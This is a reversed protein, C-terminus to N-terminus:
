QGLNGDFQEPKENQDDKISGDKGFGLMDGAPGLVLIEEEDAAVESHFAHEFGKEQLVAIFEGIQHAGAVEVNIQEFREILLEQNGTTVDIPGRCRVNEKAQSDHGAGQM